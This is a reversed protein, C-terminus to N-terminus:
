DDTLLHDLLYATADIAKQADLATTLFRRGFAEVVVDDCQLSLMQGGVLHVQLYEILREIPVTDMDPERGEDWNRM